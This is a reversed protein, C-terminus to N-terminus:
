FKKADNKKNAENIKQDVERQKEEKVDAKDSIKKEINKDYSICEVRFSGDIENEYCFKDYLNVVKIEIIKTAIVWKYIVSGGRDFKTTLWQYMTKEYLKRKAKDDEQMAMKCSVKFLNFSTDTSYNPNGYKTKIIEVLNDVQRYDNYTGGLTQGKLIAKYIGAKGSQNGVEKFKHNDEDWRMLPSNGDESFVQFSYTDEGIKQLEDKKEFKSIPDGFNFRGFAVKAFEINKLSDEKTKAQKISDSKHEQASILKKQEVVPTYCSLALFSVATLITLYKM